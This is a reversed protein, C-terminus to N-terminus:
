SEDDEGSDSQVEAPSGVVGLAAHLETLKRASIAAMAWLEPNDTVAPYEMLTRTILNAVLNATHQAAHRNLVDPATPSADDLLTPVARGQPLSPLSPAEVVAESEVTSAPRATHRELEKACPLCIAYAIHGPQYTVAASGTCDASRVVGPTHIDKMQCGDHPSVQNPRVPVQDVRSDPIMM